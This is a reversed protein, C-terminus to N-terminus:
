IEKDPKYGFLVEMVEIFKEEISNLILNMLYIMILGVGLSISYFEISYHFVVLAYALVLFVVNKATLLRNNPGEKNSVASFSVLALLLGCWSMDSYIMVALSDDSSLM